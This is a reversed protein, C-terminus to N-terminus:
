HNTNALGVCGMGHQRALTIARDMCHWANLNGPGVKGDWRELPGTSAVLAPSAHIDIGGNKIMAVFRPFRNLGHSHVGDRSSDSFLQACVLARSPEFGLKRFARSLTAVLEPYPVRLM